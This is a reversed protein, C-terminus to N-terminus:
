IGYERALTERIMLLESRWIRAQRHDGEREFRKINIEIVERREAELNDLSTRHALAEVDPKRRKFLRLLRQLSVRGDKLKHHVQERQQRLDRGEHLVEQRRYDTYHSGPPPCASLRLVNEEIARDLALLRRELHALEDHTM